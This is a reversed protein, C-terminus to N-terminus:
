RIDWRGESYGIVTGTSDQHIKWPKFTLPVYVAELGEKLFSQKVAYRKLTTDCAVIVVSKSILGNLVLRNTEPNYEGYVAHDLEGPLTKSFLIGRVADGFSNVGYNSTDAYFAFAITNADSVITDTSLIQQKTEIIYDCKMEAKKQCSLLAGAMLGIVAINSYRSIRRNM